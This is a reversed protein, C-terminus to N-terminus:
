LKRGNDSHARTMPNPLEKDEHTSIIEAAEIILSLFETGGFRSAERLQALFAPPQHM